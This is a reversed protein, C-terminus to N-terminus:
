RRYKHLTGAKKALEPVRWDAGRLLDLYFNQAVGLLILPVDCRWTSLETPNRNAQARMTQAKAQLAAIAALEADAAKLRKVIDGELEDGMREIEAQATVMQRKHEEAQAQTLQEDVTALEAAITAEPAKLRAAALRAALEDRKSVLADVTRM